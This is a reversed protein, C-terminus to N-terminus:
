LSTPAEFDKDMVTKRKATLTNEISKLCIKEVRVTLQEICQSSTSLENKEKIYKKIKSAVVLNEKITPSDVYLNFDRGMVTKRNTKKTHEIAQDLANYIDQNLKELFSKSTSLNASQKIFNKVKSTVIITEM